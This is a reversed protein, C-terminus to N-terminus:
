FIVEEDALVGGDALMGDDALVEGDALITGPDGLEVTASVMAAGGAAVLSTNVTLRLNEKLAVVRGELHRQFHRDSITVRGPIINNCNNNGGQIIYRKM